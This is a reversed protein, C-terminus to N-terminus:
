SSRPAMPGTGHDRSGTGREATETRRAMLVLAVVAAALGLTQAGRLGGAILWSDARLGEIGTRALGYLAVFLLATHGPYARRRADRFVFVGILAAALMEYVQTPHRYAGWLPIAWPVESPRGFATGAALDSLALLFVLVPMAVAFADLLDRWPLRKRRAYLVAAALGFALGPAVSFAGPTTPSLADLPAQRYADLHGLVYALRAGAIGVLLALGGTNYAINGDLRWRAAQRAALDLTLWLAAIVLLGPVPLTIPGLTLTPFM